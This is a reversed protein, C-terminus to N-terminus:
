YKDLWTSPWIREILFFINLSAYKLLFPNKQFMNAINMQDERSIESLNTALVSKYISELSTSGKQLYQYAIV